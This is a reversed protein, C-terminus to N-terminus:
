LQVKTQEARAESTETLSPRNVDPNGRFVTGIRVQHNQHGIHKLAMGIPAVGVNLNEGDVSVPVSRCLVLSQTIQNLSATNRHTLLVNFHYLLHGTVLALREHILSTFKRVECEDPEVVGVDQLLPNANKFGVMPDAVDQKHVGVVLNGKVLADEIFLM